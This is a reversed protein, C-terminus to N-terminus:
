RADWSATNSAYPAITSHRNAPSFLSSPSVDAGSVSWGVRIKSSTVQVQVRPEVTHINSNHPQLTTYVYVFIPSVQDSSAIKFAIHSSDM